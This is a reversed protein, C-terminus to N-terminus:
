LDLELKEKILQLKQKRTLQKIQYERKLAASRNSFQQQYCVKIPPDSRFFKAGGKGSRHQRFRRDIDTTIGTYLRGRETEIMYVYWLTIQGSEGDIDVVELDCAAAPQPQQSDSM